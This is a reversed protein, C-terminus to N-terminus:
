SMQHSNTLLSKMIINPIYFASCILFICGLSLLILKSVLALTSLHRYSNVSNIFVFKFLLRKLTCCYLRENKCLLLICVFTIDSKYYMRGQHYGLTPYFTSPLYSIMSPKYVMEQRIDYSRYPLEFPNVFFYTSLFYRNHEIM